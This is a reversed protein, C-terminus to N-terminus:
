LGRHRLPPEGPGRLHPLLLPYGGGPGAPLGAEGARWIAASSTGTACRATRTPATSRSRRGAPTSAGGEWWAPPIPFGTRRFRDPFIQYTVGEGFWAPVEEAGDYVTLQFPGLEERRGDLGELRFSYWVLGVYDGTELTVAFM